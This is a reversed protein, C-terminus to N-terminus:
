KQPPAMRSFLVLGVREALLTDDTHNKWNIGLSRAARWVAASCLGKMAEALAKQVDDEPVMVNWYEQYIDPRYYGQLIPDTMIREKLTTADPLELALNYLPDAMVQELTQNM